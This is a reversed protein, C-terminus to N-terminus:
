FSNQQLHNQNLFSNSLNPATMKENNQNLVTKAIVVVVVIAILIIAVVILSVGKEETFKSKM